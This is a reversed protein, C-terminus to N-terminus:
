RTHTSTFLGHLLAETWLNSLLGNDDKSFITRTLDDLAGCRGHTSISYVGSSFVQSIVIMSAMIGKALFKM